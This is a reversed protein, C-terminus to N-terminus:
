LLVSLGSPSPLPSALCKMDMSPSAEEFSRMETLVCMHLFNGGRIRRTVGPWQVPCVAQRYM